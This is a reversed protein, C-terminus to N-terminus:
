NLHELSLVIFNSDLIYRISHESIREQHEAISTQYLNYKEGISYKLISIIIQM